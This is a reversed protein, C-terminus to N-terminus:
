SIELDLQKGDKVADVLKRYEIRVKVLLSKLVDELKSGRQYIIAGPFGDPGNVGCEVLWQQEIVQIRLTGYRMLDRITQLLM